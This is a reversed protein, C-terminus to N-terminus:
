KYYGSRFTLVYSEHELADKWTHILHKYAEGVPRIKRDLDYLGLSNVNGADNRLASDWDVQDTLSYWTFGCIPIGDRKLRRVNAFQTQLWRLAHAESINTETHMVPLKYRTYYQHTIVYYGFIEGAASTSGNEHVMHENTIYYDNGMICNGKIINNEFWHYEQKTMGNEILYEYMVVSIPYGYSLDLSLFRKQNLFGALADCDPTEPHFYESSESQIFTANPQVELIANMALVNAKCLNTLARVFSRDDTKCENWWGYQGSFMAAVFIENVPTYFQIWPYRKAFERAYEAFYHPWDTNQFDGIFDPVGFHCLDVLPVINQEKLYNFTEDCFAWDYQGPGVHTTHLPAGYRLFEIGMEKVLNFDEKWYKYHGCKEMEDVRKRSGDPLTIMPYSNEIGTAFMFKNRRM